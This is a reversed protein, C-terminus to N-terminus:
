RGRPRPRCRGRGVLTLEPFHYGKTVIQTGVIVDILKEEAAAVFASIKEPSNLTDSTVV